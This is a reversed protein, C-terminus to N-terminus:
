VEGVAKEAAAIKAQRRAVEDGIPPGKFRRQEFVFWIIATLVLFGLTIWAAWDNPPQIGIVFILIMALISLVAFLKFVGEGLNWPGMKDWKSTGWAFLGLTIPIVFSFFLFIVTCSVVITYVPTEGISVLSSGWVFLVALISGVWIAAVPTRYTPSVKALAKSAPLGGDRSFAFIMRSVSTVTALGCLWQSVFIALYLIDRVIPNVQESMAWFFVNWGQKAADDMNPILLVFSCLMIYGFLASWLVSSVIGRPVSHAAKVTEESTHASADYGTITYIPLLLGLLFVWTMSNEPWVNGGAEGSYNTFTFLRGFDYSDAAILCVVALAVSTAFILYGSFDTLKATLGIGMHNVIAQLGTIIVLFVIRVLTTDALGLYPTGFTGMFFYYTGVNIAGLVTVLGLLNFWATLWGTFRNGLISGWHYLGGATPYASSIQAMAVAFVLSVLCGLPWGIGIAAGGVGSTAQALSNIGGSLICIISFSIAFNSFGSMRRELEQAYGMSHLIQTDQKKDTDSYDSM